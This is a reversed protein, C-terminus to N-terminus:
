LASQYAQVHINLDMKKLCQCLLVFIQILILDDPRNISIANILKLLFTYITLYDDDM